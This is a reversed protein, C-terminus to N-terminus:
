SSDGSSREVRWDELHAEVQLDRHIHAAIDNEEVVIEEGWRELEKADSLLFVLEDTIGDTTSEIDDLRQLLEEVDDNLQNQEEELGYYREEPSQNATQLSERAIRIITERADLEGEVARYTTSQELLWDRWNEAERRAEQLPERPPNYNFDHDVENSIDNIKYPISNLEDPAEFNDLVELRTKIQNWQKKPGQKRISPSFGLYNQGVESLTAGYYDRLAYAALRRQVMHDLDLNDFQDLSESPSEREPM